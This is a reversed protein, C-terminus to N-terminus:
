ADPHPRGAGPQWTPAPSSHESPPPYPPAAQYPAYGRQTAPGFRTTAALVLVFLGVALMAYNLWAMTDMLLYPLDLNWLFMGEILSYVSHVTILALGIYALARASRSPVRAMLVLGVIAALLLPVNGIVLTIWYPM